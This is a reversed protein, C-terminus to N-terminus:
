AATLRSTSSNDLIKRVTTILREVDFNFRTNSIEIANRRSLLKLPPPLTEASPMKMEDVLVPIVRVDRALATSVELRVFDAPDDLRSKKGSGAGAWRKGILAILIDCEGVADQIVRTFDVGHEITDVDMFLRDKPFHQALERYIAHAYGASDERRYSIFIKSM